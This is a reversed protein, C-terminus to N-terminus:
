PRGLPFLKMNPFPNTFQQFGLWGGTMRKRSGRYCTQICRCCSPVKTDRPVRTDRGGRCRPGVMEFTRRCKKSKEVVRRSSVSDHLILDHLVQCYLIGEQKHWHSYLFLVFFIHDLCSVNKRDALNSMFAPPSPPLLPVLDPHGIKSGELAMKPMKPSFSALGKKPPGRYGGPTPKSEGQCTPDVGRRDLLPPHPIGRGRVRVGEKHQVKPHGALPPPGLKGHRFPQVGFSPPACGAKNQSFM